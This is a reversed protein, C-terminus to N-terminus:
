ALFGRRAFNRAVGTVERRGEYRRKQWTLLCADTDLGHAAIWRLPGLAGKRVKSDEWGYFTPHGPLALRLSAGSPRTVLRPVEAMWQLLGPDVMNALTYGGELTRWVELHCHSAAPNDAWRTVAGLCEGAFVQRGLLAGARPEVHRMVYVRGGLTGGDAERVKVTGGFVQGSRDGGSSRVEVITGAVPSRLLTGGAAFWDQAAHYRLGNSAPAGEPDRYLFASPGRPTPLIAVPM